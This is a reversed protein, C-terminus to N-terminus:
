TRTHRYVATQVSLWNININLKQGLPNLTVQENTNGPIICFVLSLGNMDMFLGMQVIPNGKFAGVAGPRKGGRERLLLLQLLRIYCKPTAGGLKLSDKYVKAQIFGNEGSLLSLSGCILHLEALTAASTDPM